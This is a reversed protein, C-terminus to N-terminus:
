FFYYVGLLFRWNGVEKSDEVEGKSGTKGYAAVTYDVEPAIRFKGTNYIFRPSIRYLYDINSGRSYYPGALQVDAGMNASYGGFLGVQWKKGNTHLDGWVSLTNVPEYDQFDKLPDTKEKVAYGGLMVLNYSLQGYIAEVKFTVPKNKWKAYFMAAYGGVTQDTKYNSDSVLRPTLIKYNGGLGILLECGRNENTNKFEFRLNVEPIASNRLYQASAGYPGNDLFDLQSMATAIIRFKGLNQSVRIQPNRSFPQFPAGTNFSVVGPFAQTIFMPHWYQGVLLETSKWNLKVFAHRLRFGNIDGDSHGFFAGEIVGSTKAGFADPGTIKGTLRSQISLMNFNPRANIDKGDKDLLENKPYLLFHGERVSVTQRSDWFIDTKVFGSFKIGFKAPEQAFTSIVIFLFITLYTIKRKM